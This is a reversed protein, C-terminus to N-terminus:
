MSYLRSMSVVVKLTRQVGDSLSSSAAKVEIVHKGLEMPIIVYPISITSEAEVNVITRYKKKKSAANCIHETEFFDVRVKMNESSFNHLVAKIELQENRVASYPLRLDVFFDKEVTMEYPDAVCIGHTKSMSIVLVQWTTISNLVNYDPLDITKWMWSERFNTRPIIDDSSIFEDDDDESRALLLLDKQEDKRKQIENCCDLFAKVCEAGDLIFSARRECTYGLRNQRLGDACCKKQESNYKSILTQTVQLLTEARRKRKLPTPCEPATRENTGGLKDSEFLLGADYFVEM